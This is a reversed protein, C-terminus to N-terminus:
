QPKSEASSLQPQPPGGEPRQAQGGMSALQLVGLLGQDAERRIRAIESVFREFAKQFDSNAYDGVQAVFDEYERLQSTYLRMELLAQEQYRTLQIFGEIVVVIASLAALAWKPAPTSAVVPVSAAVILSTAKLIRYVRLRKWYRSSLAMLSDYVGALYQQENYKLDRGDTLADPTIISASRAKTKSRTEDDWEIRRVAARWLDDKSMDPYQKELLNVYRRTRGNLRWDRFWGM